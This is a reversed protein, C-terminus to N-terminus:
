GREEGLLRKLEALLVLAELPTTHLLDVSVLRDIIAQSQAKENDNGSCTEQRGLTEYSHERHLQREEPEEALIEKARDIVESPLGALKAVYIGYSKQAAGPVVKYLFTVEEKEERVELRANAVGPLTDALRALEHYHTTFLTKAKIDRALLEAVAQAIAQGDSTGTGRGVEDLIVLSKATAQRLINATEQMEVM